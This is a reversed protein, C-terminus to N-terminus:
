DIVPVLDLFWRSGGSGIEVRSAPFVSNVYRVPVRRHDATTTPWSAAAIPIMTRRRNPPEETRPICHNEGSWSVV